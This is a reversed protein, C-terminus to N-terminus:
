SFDLGVHCIKQCQITLKTIYILSDVCYTSLSLLAKIHGETSAYGPQDIKRNYYKEKDQPM